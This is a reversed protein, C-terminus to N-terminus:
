LRRTGPRARHRRCPSRCAMAVEVVAVLELAHVPAAAAATLLHRLSRSGDTRRRWRAMTGGGGGRAATGEWRHAV